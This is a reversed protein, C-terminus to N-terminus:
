CPPDYERAFCIIQEATQRDYQEYVSEWDNDSRSQFRFYVPVSSQLNESSVSNIRSNQTVEVTGEINSVPSDM